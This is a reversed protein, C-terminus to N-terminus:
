YIIWWTDAVREDRTGTATWSISNYNAAMLVVGCNSSFEAVSEVGGQAQGGVKLVATVKEILVAGLPQISM